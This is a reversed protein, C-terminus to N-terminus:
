EGDSARRYEDAARQLESQMQEELLEKNIINYRRAKLAAKEKMYADFDVGTYHASENHYRAADRIFDPLAEEYDKIQHIAMYSTLGSLGSVFLNSDPPIRTTRVPTSVGEFSGLWEIDALEVWLPHLPWRSQTEDQLNPITLKLWNLLCYRWLGGARYLLTDVTKADHEGLVRNKLEFELRYVTQDDKWGKERWLDKLPEKYKGKIEETKNYLRASIDGGLGFTYGTFVKDMHFKGHRKARTIWQALQIKELSVDAIFDVFLDGRSVNETAEILGFSGIISELESKCYEVGYSMLWDSRLQVYALPLQKAQGSSFQIRYANNELVYPYYGTGKDKVEFCHIGIIWSAKAKDMPLKSQALEKYDKLKDEMDEFLEGQYSLYLSDIGNRLIKVGNSSISNAPATNVLRRVQGWVRVSHTKTHPSTTKKTNM